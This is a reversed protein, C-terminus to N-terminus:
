AEERAEQGAEERTKERKERKKRRITKRKLSKKKLRKPGREKNREQDERFRPIRHLQCTPLFQRVPLAGVRANLFRTSRRLGLLTACALPTFKM